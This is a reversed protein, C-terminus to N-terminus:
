PSLQERRPLQLARSYGTIGPLKRCSFWIIALYKAAWISTQDCQTRRHGAPASKWIIALSRACGLGFEGIMGHATAHGHLGTGSPNFNL